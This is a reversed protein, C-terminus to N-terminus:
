NTLSLTRLGAGDSVNLSGSGEPDPIRLTVGIYDIAEEGASEREWNFVESSQLGSVITTGAGTPVVEPATEFRVCATTSCSYTVRCQIAPDSADEELGGGCATRRVQTKFAIKSSSAEYVTIGNRIERTMRELVWRATSVNQSRESVKPQDRVASVLMSGVAGLLVVSMSAAVLLEILTM